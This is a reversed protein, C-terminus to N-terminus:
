LCPDVIRLYLDLDEMFPRKRRLTGSRLNILFKNWMQAMGERVLLCKIDKLWTIAKDRREKTLTTESLYEEATSFIVDLVKAFTGNSRHTKWVGIQEPSIKGTGNSWLSTCVLDATKLLFATDCTCPNKLLRRLGDMDCKDVYKSFLELTEHFSQTKDQSFGSAPDRRQESVSLRQMTDCSQEVGEARPPNTLLPIGGGGRCDVNRQECVPVNRAMATSTHAYLWRENQPQHQLFRYIQGQNWNNYPNLHRNRQLNQQLAQMQRLHQQNQPRWTNNGQNGHRPQSQTQQHQSSPYQNEKGKLVDRLHKWFPSKGFANCHCAECKGTWQPCKSALKECVFCYCKECYLDNGEIPRSLRYNNSFPPKFKHIRCDERAHPLNLAPQNFTVALDGKLPSATSVANGEPKCPSVIIISEDGDDGDDKIDPSDIVEISVDMM